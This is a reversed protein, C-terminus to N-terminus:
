LSSEPRCTFRGALFETQTHISSYRSSALRAMEKTKLAEDPNFRCTRILAVALLVVEMALFLLAPGVLSFVFYNDTRLWCYDPTGFSFPDVIAAGCVVLLPGGYAM